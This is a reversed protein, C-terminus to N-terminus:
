KIYSPIETISTKIINLLHIMQIINAMKFFAQFM